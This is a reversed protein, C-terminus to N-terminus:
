EVKFQVDNGMGLSNVMSPRELKWELEGDRYKGECHSKERAKIPKLIGALGDTRHELACGAWIGELPFKWHTYTSVNRFTPTGTRPIKHEVRM